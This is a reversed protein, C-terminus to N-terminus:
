SYVEEKIRIPMILFKLGPEFFIGSSQGDKLMFVAQEQKSSELYELLYRGSFAIVFNVGDSWSCPLAEYYEGLDETATTIEMDFPHIRFWIMGPNQRDQAMILTRKIAGALAKRNVELRLHKKLALLGRYDPFMGDHLRSTITIGTAEFRVQQELMVATFGGRKQLLKRIIIQCRLPILMERDKGPGNVCPYQALTLIRSNTSVVELEEDEYHWLLNTLITRTEERPACSDEVREVLPWLEKAQADSFILGDAEKDELIPYEEVPLCLLKTEGEQKIVSEVEGPIILTAGTESAAIVEKLTRWPLLWEGEINGSYPLSTKITLELDTGALELWGNAARLKVFTLVPLQSRQFIAKGVEELKALFTKRDVLIGETSTM